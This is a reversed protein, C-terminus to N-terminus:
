EKKKWDSSKKSHDVICINNIMLIQASEDTAFESVHNVVNTVHNIQTRYEILNVIGFVFSSFRTHVSNCIHCIVLWRSSSFLLKTHDISHITGIVDIRTEVIFHLLIVHVVFWFEIDIEEQNPHLSTCILFLKNFIRINFSNWYM